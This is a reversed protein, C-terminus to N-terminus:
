KGIPKGAPQPKGEKIQYGAPVAFTSPAIAQGVKVNSLTITTTSSLSAGPKQVKDQQVVKLPFRPELKQPMWITVSRSAEGQSASRTLVDCAYGSVTETRVKKANQVATSADFAFQSMFFGFNDPSKKMEAPLAVKVGKKAKKDLQYIYGNTVLVIGEGAIPSKVDMRAQTPTLWVSATVTVQGAPASQVSTLNFSATKKGGQAHAQQGAAGGLLVAAALVVGGALRSSVRM